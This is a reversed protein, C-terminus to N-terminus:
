EPWMVSFEEAAAALLVSENVATIPTILSSPECELRSVDVHSM